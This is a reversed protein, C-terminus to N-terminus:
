KINKIKLLKKENLFSEGDLEKKEIKLFEKNKSMTERGKYQSSNLKKLRYNLLYNNINDKRKKLSNQYQNNKEKDFFNNKEKSFSKTDKKYNKKFNFIDKTNQDVPQNPINNIQLSNAQIQNNNILTQLINNSISQSLFDLFNNSNNVLPSNNFLQFPNNAKIFPNNILNMQNNRNNNM